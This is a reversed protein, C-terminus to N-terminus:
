KHKKTKSIEYFLKEIERCRKESLGTNAMIDYWASNGDLLEIFALEIQKTYDTTVMQKTYDTTVM